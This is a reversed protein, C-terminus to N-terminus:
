HQIAIAPGVWHSGLQHEHCQFPLRQRSPHQVDEELSAVPQSRTCLDHSRKGQILGTTAIPFGLKLAAQDIHVKGVQYALPKRAMM